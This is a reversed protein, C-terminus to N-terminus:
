MNRPVSITTAARDLRDQGCRTKACAMAVLATCLYAMLQSPRLAPGRPRPICSSLHFVPPARPARVACVSQSIQRVQDGVSRHIAAPLAAGIIAAVVLALGPYHGSRTCWSYIRGWCTPAIVFALARLSSLAASFEGKGMGGAVAHATAQSKMAVGCLNNIGPALSVVHGWVGRCSSSPAATAVAAAAAAAVAVTSAIAAAAAAAAAAAMSALRYVM